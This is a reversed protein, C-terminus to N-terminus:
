LYLVAMAVQLLFVLLFGGGKTWESQAVLFIALCLFLPFRALSVIARLTNRYDNM